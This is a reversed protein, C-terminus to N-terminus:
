SSSRSRHQKLEDHSPRHGALWTSRNPLFTRRHMMMCHRPWIALHQIFTKLTKGDDAAYM